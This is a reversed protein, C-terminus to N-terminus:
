GVGWCFHTGPINGPIYVRDTRVASRVLGVTKFDQPRLRRSGEPVTRVQVPTGKIHKHIFYLTYNVLCLPTPYSSSREVYSKFEIIGKSM